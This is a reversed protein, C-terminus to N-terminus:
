NVIKNLFIKDREAKTLHLTKTLGIIESAKFEGNGDLKNYLTQRLIGSKSAIAVITMGSDTIKKNLLEFNTM